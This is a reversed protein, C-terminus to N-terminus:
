KFNVFRDPILSRLCHEFELDLFPYLFAVWDCKKCRELVKAVVKYFFWHTIVRLTTCRTHKVALSVPRSCTPVRSNRYTSWHCGTASVSQNPFSSVGDSNRKGRRSFTHRQHVIRGGQKTQISEDAEKLFLPACFVFPLWFIIPVKSPLLNLAKSIFFCDLFAM